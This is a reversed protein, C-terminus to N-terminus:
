RSRGAKRGCLSSASLWLALVARSLLDAHKRYYLRHSRDYELAARGGSRDMSTGLRHVVRAAPTFVVHAGAQRARRCLDADEEYLFFREDFGGLQELLSRRALLCSGSVWDPERERSCLALVELLTRPDRAAVGRVLRRQRWERPPTLDRGFSVQPTGDPNFTAPGVIGVEPRRELVRCLAEVAGPAVQADPNLFLVLPASTARWGRNSAAAFGLNAGAELVRVGPFDQRVLAASGDGSDNDVVVVELPLTVAQLSRLGAPLDDRSNWSVVVVAVTPASERPTPEVVTSV